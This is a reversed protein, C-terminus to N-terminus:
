GRQRDRPLDTQGATLRPHQEAVLEGVVLLHEARQEVVVAHDNGPDGGFVLEADRAREPSPTVDDGHGTVADVVAGRQLGRVDADRHADPM